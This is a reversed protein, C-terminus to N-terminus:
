VGTMFRKAIEEWHIGPSLQPMGIIYGPTNGASVGEAKAGTVKFPGSVTRGRSVCPGLCAFTSSSSLIRYM